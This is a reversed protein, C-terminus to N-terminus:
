SIINRFYLFLRVYDCCLLEHYRASQFLAVRNPFPINQFNSILAQFFDENKRSLYFAM